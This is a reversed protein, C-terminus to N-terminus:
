EGCLRGDPGTYKYELEADAIYFALSLERQRYVALRADNVPDTRLVGWGGVRIGADRFPQLWEHYDAGRPGKTVRNTGDHTQVAIWGFQNDAMTRATAVPDLQHALYVLVGARQWFGAAM